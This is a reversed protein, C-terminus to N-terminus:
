FPTAREYAWSVVQELTQYMLFEDEKLRINTGCFTSGNSNAHLVMYNIGGILLALIMRISVNGKAFHKESITFLREGLQERSESLEKLMNDGKSSLELLSVEQALRDKSFKSFHEKVMMVALGKGDDDHSQALIERIQGSYALWVDNSDLAERLVGSIGGFYAYILSKSKGAERELSNIGLAKIGGHALLRQAAEKFLRITEPKNRTGTREQRQNTPQNKTTERERNRNKM